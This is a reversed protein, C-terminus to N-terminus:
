RGYARLRGEVTSLDDDMGPYGDVTGYDRFDPRAAYQPGGERSGFRANRNLSGEGSYGELGPNKALRSGVGTGSADFAPRNSGTHFVTESAIPGGEYGELGPNNQALAPLAFFATLAFGVMPLYIKNM